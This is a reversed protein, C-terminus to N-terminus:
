PKSQTKRISKALEILSLPAKAPPIVAHIPKPTIQPQSNIVNEGTRRQRRVTDTATHINFRALQFTRRIMGRNDSFKPESDM